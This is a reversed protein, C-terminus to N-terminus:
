WCHEVTQLLAPAHVMLEDLMRKVNFCFMGSNWLYRKDQLYSTAVDLSPKEIFQKVQFTHPITYPEGCEIYGFGTEPLTPTIGFTTIKGTKALEYAIESTLRFAELDAVLHDAPLVLLVADPGFEFYVKLTALIIAPATNRSVPELLFHHALN